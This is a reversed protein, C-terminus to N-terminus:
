HSKGLDKYLAEAVVIDEPTTIKINFYDGMILKVRYSSMSEVIVGDDTIKSEDSNYDRITVFLKDYADMLLPYSFAQPTQISWLSSRDLTELAYGNKDGVTITETVPVAPVCAKYGTVFDCCRDILGQSLLPRAGDHILIYDTGAAASRIGNYVSRFRTDGGEAIERVKKIGYQACLSAAYELDEKATVLVTSSINKNMDFARLSHIVIPVDGLLMFQKKIDSRMRLGSGAALVVATFRPHEQMDASEAASENENDLKIRKFEDM